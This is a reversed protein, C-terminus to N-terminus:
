GSRQVDTVTVVDNADVGGAAVGDDVSHELQTNPQISWIGNRTAATIDIYSGASLASIQALMGTGNGWLQYALYTRYREAASDLETKVMSVTRDVSHRNYRLAKKTVSVLSYLEYWDVQWDDGGTAQKGAQAAGFSWGVGGIPRDTFTVRNYLGGGNTDKQVWQLFSDDEIIYNEYAYDELHELLIHAIDAKTAAAAM